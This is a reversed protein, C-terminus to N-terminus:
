TIPQVYGFEHLQCNYLAVYDQPPYELWAVESPEDAVSRDPM